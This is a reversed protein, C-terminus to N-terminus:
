SGKDRMFDEIEEPTLHRVGSVREREETTLRLEAHEKSQRARGNTQFWGAARDAYPSNEGKQTGPRGGIQQRKM